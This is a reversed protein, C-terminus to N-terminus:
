PQPLKYDLLRGEAYDDFIHNILRKIAAISAKLQPVIILQRRDLVWLDFASGDFYDLVSLHVYPNGHLVSVSSGKLRRMAQILRRNEQVNQFQDGEFDIVLPLASSDTRELRARHSFLKLNADITKCTPVIFTQYARTFLSNARVIGQRTFAITALSRERSMVEFELSQFWGNHEQIWQFADDLTMEPWSVIPMTNLHSGEQYRLRQSARTIILDSYGGDAKFTDLLRKMRKHSVFTQMIMPYLSQFLPQLARRFFPTPELCFAVFVSPCDKQQLIFFTGTDSKEKGNETFKYDLRFALLGDVRYVLSVKKDGCIQGDLWDLSAQNCGFPVARVNREESALLSDVQKVFDDPKHEQKYFAALHDFSKMIPEGEWDM